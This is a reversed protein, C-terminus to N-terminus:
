EVSAAAVAREAPTTSAYSDGDPVEAKTAHRHLGARVIQAVMDLNDPRAQLTKSVM